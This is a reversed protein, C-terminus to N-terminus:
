LTENIINHNYLGSNMRWRKYFLFLEAASLMAIIPVLLYIWFATWNNAPLASAFSRAPNMGFGSVPGAVIVYVCVLCAAIM